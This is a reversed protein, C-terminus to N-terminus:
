DAVAPSLRIYHVGSERFLRRGREALFRVTAERTREILHEVHKPEMDLGDGPGLVPCVVVVRGMRRLRAFESLMRQHLMLQVTRGMLEAWNAPPRGLSDGAMLEIGLVDREGGALALGIPLNDVIGGDLYGTQDIRVAPFIGPIATSARLAPLLPGRGFVQPRGAEIDTALVELPVRLGEFTDIGTLQITREILRTVNSAPMAALPDGRLRGLVVGLPHLRFVDQALRSFWLERLMAAGARSPYAALTAANLAGVSVGVLRRPPELGSDFLAQVVGVQAAGRAGGGGLVWTRRSREAATQRQFPFPAM